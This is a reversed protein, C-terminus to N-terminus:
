ETCSYLVHTCKDRLMSFLYIHWKRSMAPLIWYGAGTVTIVLSDCKKEKGHVSVVSNCYLNVTCLIQMIIQTHSIKRSDRCKNRSMYHMLRKLSKQTKNIWECEARAGQLLLYHMLMNLATWNSSSYARCDVFFKMKEMEAKKRKKKQLVLTLGNSDHDSRKKLILFDFSMKQTM